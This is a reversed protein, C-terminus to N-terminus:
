RKVKEWWNKARETPEGHGKFVSNVIPTFAIAIMLVVFLGVIFVGVVNIAEVVWGPVSLYQQVAAALVAWAVIGLAVTRIENWFPITPAELAESVIKQAAGKHTLGEEDAYGQLKVRTPEDLDLVIDQSESVVREDEATPLRDPDWYFTMNGSKRSAIVGDEALEKLRDTVTPRTAPLEEAAEPASMFVRNDRKLLDRVAEKKLQRKRGARSTM